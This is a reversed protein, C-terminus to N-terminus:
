RDAYKNKIEKLQEVTMLGNNSELLNGDNDLFELYPIESVHKENFETPNEDVDIESFAIDAEKLNSAQLVCPNCWTAGYKIVKM